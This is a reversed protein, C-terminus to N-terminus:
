RPLVGTKLDLTHIQGDRLEVRSAHKALRGFDSPQSSGLPQAGRPLAIVFYKGPRIAPLTYRGDVEATVSRTTSYRAHWSSAAEGFLLVAADLTPTGGSDLVVGSLTAGSKTMTVVVGVSGSDFDTPVDTIDKGDATVSKLWWGTMGSVRLLVPGFVHELRFSGGDAIAGSPSMTPRPQQNLSVPLVTARSAAPPSAADFTVTGSITAGKRTTLLVGDVDAYVGVPRVAFEAGPPMQKTTVSPKVVLFYDGAVVNRATFTGDAATTVGSGTFGTDSTRAMASVSTGAVPQGRSDVVTGSIRFTGGRVVPFELGTVEQGVAIKIPAAEGANATGPYYTVLIRNTVAADWPHPTSGWPDAAIVYDGPALAFVRFMGFDDTFAGSGFGVNGSFERQRGGEVRFVRIRAFAFPEGYEDHVRGAISGARRLRVEIRDIVQKDTLEIIQEEALYRASTPGVAAQLRYRGGALQNFQFRGDGDTRTTSTGDAQLATLTVTNDRIPTGTDAAVVRGRISATGPTPGSSDRPPVQAFALEPCCLLAMLIFLTRMGSKLM